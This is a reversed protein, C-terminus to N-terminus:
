SRGGPPADADTTEKESRWFYQGRRCVERFGIRHYIGFGMESSHLVGLQYGRERADRLPAVTMATGIGQRRAEPITAISYVRAVGAGLLLMAAAVAEGSLQGLYLRLPSRGGFGISTFCDQFARVVLSPLGFGDVAVQCYQRLAEGDSVQEMVLGPPAPAEENMTLLDLAMCPAEEETFGHAALYAPLRAPRTAPGTFWLIPVNRKQARSVVTEIAADASDPTLQARMVSNFVGVPIDTITWLMDAGDHVEAAPWSHWLLFFEFFNAEIVASLAPESLDQLIKSM